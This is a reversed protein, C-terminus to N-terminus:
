GYIREIAEDIAKSSPVVSEAGAWKCPNSSDILLAKAYDALEEVNIGQEKAAQLVATLAQMNAILDMKEM